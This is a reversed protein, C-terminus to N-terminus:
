AKKLQLPTLKMLIKCANKIIFTNHAAKRYKCSADKNKIPLLFNNFFLQKYLTPSIPEGSAYVVSGEWVVTNSPHFHLWSITVFVRLSSRPLDPRASRKLKLITVSWTSTTSHQSRNIRIAIFETLVIIIISVYQM